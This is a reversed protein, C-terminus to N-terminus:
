IAETTLGALRAFNSTPDECRDDATTRQRDNPASQVNARRVPGAKIASM